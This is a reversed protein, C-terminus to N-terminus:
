PAIVEDCQVVACTLDVIGQQFDPTTNFGYTTAIAAVLVILAKIVKKSKLVAPVKM